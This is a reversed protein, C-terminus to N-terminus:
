DELGEPLDVRLLNHELDIDVVVSDIAPILMEKKGDRVVYVDNSGTTLVAAVRGLPRDDLTVAELGLIQHWYYSGEELQPFSLNDICIECGIWAEAEEISGIGEFGLRIVRKHPCALAIRLTALVEGGRSVTLAKGPCLLEMADGYPMVKLHGKIGHTGVIKGIPVLAEEGM